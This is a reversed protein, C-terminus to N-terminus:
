HHGWLLPPRPLSVEAESAWKCFCFWGRSQLVLHSPWASCLHAHLRTLLRTSEETHGVWKFKLLARRFSSKLKFTQIDSVLAWHPQQYSPHCRRHVRKLFLLNKLIFIMSPVPLPYVLEPGACSGRRGRHAIKLDLWERFFRLTINQNVCVVSDPHCLNGACGM